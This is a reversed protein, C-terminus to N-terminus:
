KNLFMLMEQTKQYKFKKFMYLFLMKLLSFGAAFACYGLWHIDLIAGKKM